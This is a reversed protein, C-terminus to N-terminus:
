EVAEITITGSMKSVLEGGSVVQGLEYLSPNGNYDGYFFVVDGWPKYYALTGAGSQALPSDETDLEQPPYFIKENNSFDEAEVTFPLQEYFSNAAASNNLEYVATNEGFQVSIQRSKSAQEESNETASSIQAASSLDSSETPQSKESTSTVSTASSNETPVSSFNDQNEATGCAAITLVVAITFFLSLIKKM